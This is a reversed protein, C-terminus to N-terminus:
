GPGSRAARIWSPSRIVFEPKGGAHEVASQLAFSTGLILIMFHFFTNIKNPKSRKSSKRAM